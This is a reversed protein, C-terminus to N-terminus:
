VSYHEGLFLQDFCARLDTFVRPVSEMFDFQLCLDTHVGPLFVKRHDSAIYRQVKVLREWRMVVIPSMIERDMYVLSGVGTVVQLSLSIEYM